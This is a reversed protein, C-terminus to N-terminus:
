TIKLHDYKDSFIRFLENSQFNFPSNSKKIRTLSQLAVLGGEEGM